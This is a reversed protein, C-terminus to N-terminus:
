HEGEGQPLSGGFLAGGILPSPTVVSPEESHEVSPEESREVREQEVAGVDIVCWGKTAREGPNEVTTLVITGPADGLAKLMPALRKKSHARERPIIIAPAAQRESLVAAVACLVRTEEAGSLACHFVPSDDGRWLGLQFVERGTDDNLRLGFRDSEPLYLNVRQEFTAVARKILMDRAEVLAKEFQAWVAYEREALAVKDRANIVDNWRAHLLEVQQLNTKATALAGWLATRKAVRGAADLDLISTRVQASLEVGEAAQPILLRIDTEIRRRTQEVEVDQQRREDQQRVLAELNAATIAFTDNEVPANCIPCGTMGNEHATRLVLSAAALVARNGEARADPAPLGALVARAQALGQRAEVVAGFRELDDIERLQAEIDAVADRLGQVQADTPMGGAMREGLQEVLLTSVKAEDRYKRQMERTQEILALVKAPSSLGARTGTTSRTWMEHWLAPLLAVVDADTTTNEIATLFFARAKDASGTISEELARMPLTAESSTSLTPRQAKREGKVIQIPMSFSSRSTNSFAVEAVLAGAGPPALNLLEAPLAPDRLVVDTARGSLALEIANLLRSKGEANDGVVLIKSGFFEYSWPEDMSDSKVNSTVRAITVQPVKMPDTMTPDKKKAMKTKAKPQEPQAHQAPIAAAVQAQVNAYALMEAVRGRGDGNSSITGKRSVETITFGQKEYAERISPVNANSVIFTVGMWAAVGACVALAEQTKHDFGGANGYSGKRTGFEATESLAAYPPDLFVVDGRKANPGWYPSDDGDYGADWGTTYLEVGPDNLLESAERLRDVDFTFPIARKKSDKGLPVNFERDANERYVGNFCVANVFLFWVAVTIDDREDLCWDEPVDAYTMARANEYTTEPHADYLAKTEELGAIVAEVDQRIGMYCRMLRANNDSLIAREFSLAGDRRLGLVAFAVAGSGLFPEYYTGFKSPILPLIKPLLAAKSGVFRKIPSQAFNFTVTVDGSTAVDTPRVSFSSTGTAETGAITAMFAEVADPPDIRLPEVAADASPELWMPIPPDEVADGPADECNAYFVIADAGCTRCRLKGQVGSDVRVRREFFVIAWPGECNWCTRRQGKFRIM